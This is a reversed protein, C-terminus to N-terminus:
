ESDPFALTGTAEAGWRQVLLRPLYLGHGVTLLSALLCAFQWLPTLAYSGVVTLIGLFFYVITSRLSHKETQATLRMMILALPIVLFSFLFVIVIFSVPGTLSHHLQLIHHFFWGSTLMVSVASIFSVLVTM